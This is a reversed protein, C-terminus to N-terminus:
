RFFNVTAGQACLQGLLGVDLDAGVGVPRDDVTVSRFGSSANSTLSVCADAPLSEYSIVMGADPVGNVPMSLVRIPTGWASIPEGGAWVMERPFLNDLMASNTTLGAYTGRSRYAQRLNTSLVRLRPAEDAVQSGKFATAYSAFIGVSIAMCAGAVLLLEPLSVGHQHAPFFTKM